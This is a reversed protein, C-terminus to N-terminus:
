GTVCNPASTGKNERFPMATVKIYHGNDQIELEAGASFGPAPGSFSVSM